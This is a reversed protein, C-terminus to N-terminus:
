AKEEEGRSKNLYFRINQEAQWVPSPRAVHTATHLMVGLCTSGESPIKPCCAALVFLSATKHKPASGSGLRRCFSLSTLNTYTENLIWRWMANRRFIQAAVSLCLCYSSLHPPIEFDPLFITYTLKRWPKPLMAIFRSKLRFDVPSKLVNSFM